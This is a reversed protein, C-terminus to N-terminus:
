QPPLRNLYAEWRRSLNHVEEVLSQIAAAHLKATEVLGDIERSHKESQVAVARLIGWIEDIEKRVEDTL